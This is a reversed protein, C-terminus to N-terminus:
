MTVVVKGHTKRDALDQLATAADEHTARVLDVGNVSLIKDGRRVQGSQDAPGGALIFSIFIGEGDKDWGRFGASRTNQYRNLDAVVSQPIAPVDEMVLNGNNAETRTASAAIAAAALLALLAGAAGAYKM